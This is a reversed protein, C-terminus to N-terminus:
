MLSRSCFSFSCVCVDGVIFVLFVESTMVRSLVSALFFVM